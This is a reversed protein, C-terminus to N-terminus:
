SGMLRRCIDDLQELSAYRLVVEGAGDGKYAISVNLGLVDLLDQELAAIDEDRGGSFAAPKGRGKPKLPGEAARRVLAETQRVPLSALWRTQLLPNERHHEVYLAALILVVAGM